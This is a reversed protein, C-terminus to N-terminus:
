NVVSNLGPPDVQGLGLFIRDHKLPRDSFREGIGHETDLQLVAVGDEGVAGPLHAHVPDADEGAVTDLHLDRGVVEASTPDGIAVLLFGHLYSRADLLHALLALDDAPVTADLDDTGVGAVLLPLSLSSQM